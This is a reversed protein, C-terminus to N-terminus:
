GQPRAEVRLEPLTDLEIWAAKRNLRGPIAPQSPLLLEAAGGDIRYPIVQRAAPKSAAAVTPGYGSTVTITGLRAPLTVAAPDTSAGPAAVTWEVDYSAGASSDTAVTRQEVHDAVELTLVVVPASTPNTVHVRVTAVGTRLVDLKETTVRPTIPHDNPAGINPPVSTKQLYPTRGRGHESAILDLDASGLDNAYLIRGDLAATNSSFPNLLLLYPGSRQVFVLSRGKVDHAADRWPVQAESIRHNVDLRNM